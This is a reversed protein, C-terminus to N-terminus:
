NITLPPANVLNCFWGSQNGLSMSTCKSTASLHYKINRMRGEKRHKHQYIGHVPIIRMHM